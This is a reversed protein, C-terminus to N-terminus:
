DELTMGTFFPHVLYLDVETKWTAKNWRGERTTFGKKARPFKTLTKSAAGGPVETVIASMTKASNESIDKLATIVRNVLQTDVDPEKTSGASRDFAPILCEM